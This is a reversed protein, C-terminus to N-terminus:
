HGVLGNQLLLRQLPGRHHTPHVCQRVYLYCVTDLQLYMSAVFDARHTYIVGLL